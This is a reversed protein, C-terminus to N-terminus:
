QPVPPLGVPRPLTPFNPPGTSPAPTESSGGPSLATPPLPPFKPNNANAQRQAEMLLIQQELSPAPQQQQQAQQQQIATPMPSPNFMPNVVGGMQANPATAGTNGQPLRLTRTPMTFGSGPAQPNTTHPAGPLGTSPVGGPAGPPVGAPMPTSPLKPGDKEINLTVLTGANSIKVDGTKENIELVEVDGQRQGESLIYSIEPKAPEGPKGPPAPSKMLVRKGVVTTIGTLTIKVEKPKNEEVAPPPPPPKLSFVNRDVITLYPNAAPDETVAGAVGCLAISGALLGLVKAGHKM